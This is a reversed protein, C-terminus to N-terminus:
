SMTPIAELFDTLELERQAALAEEVAEPPAEGSNVAELIAMQVSPDEMLRLAVDAADDAADEVEPFKLAALEKAQQVGEKEVLREVKDALAGEIGQGPRVRVAMALPELNPVWWSENAQRMPENM